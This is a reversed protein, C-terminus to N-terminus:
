FNEMLIDFSVMTSFIISLKPLIHAISTTPGMYQAMDVVAGKLSRVIIEQVVFQPYHDKICLVEHYWQQKQRELCPM